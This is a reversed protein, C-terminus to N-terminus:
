RKVTSISTVTLYIREECKESARLIIVRNRGERYEVIYLVNCVVDTAM